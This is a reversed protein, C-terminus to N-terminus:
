LSKKKAIRYNNTSLSKWISEFPTNYSRLDDSHEQHVMTFSRIDKLKFGKLLARDYFDGDENGWYKLSEDFKGVTEYMYKSFLATGYLGRDSKRAINGYYRMPDRLFFYNAFKYNLMVDSDICLIWDSECLDLKINRVRSHDYFPENDFRKIKIPVQLNNLFEEGFHLILSELVTVKSNWDVIIIEKFPFNIWTELSKILFDNRNMCSTTLSMKKCNDRTLDSLIYKKELFKNALIKSGEQPIIDLPNETKSIYRKKKELYIFNEIFLDRM